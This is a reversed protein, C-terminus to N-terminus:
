RRRVHRSASPRVLGSQDHGRSRTSLGLPRRWMQWSPASNTRTALRELDHLLHGLLDLGCGVSALSGLFRLEQEQAEDLQGAQQLDFSLWGEAHLKVAAWWNLGTEECLQRASVPLLLTQGVPVRAHCPDDLRALRPKDVSDEGGSPNRRQPLCRRPPTARAVEFERITPVVRSDPTADFGVFHSLNLRKLAPLSPPATWRRGRPLETAVSPYMGEGGVM